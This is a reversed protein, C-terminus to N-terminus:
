EKKEAEEKPHIRVKGRNEGAGGKVEVRNQDMDFVIEEGTVTNDGESLKPEGTLVVKKDLNYFVAKQCNAVRLGQQIKVNGGAVVREIGKGNEIIVADLSDAYIVMDKQRATVNGRFLILNEKTLTEVSDSIIDIPQASDIDIKSEKGATPGEQKPKRKEAFPAFIGPLSATKREGGTKQEAKGTGPEAKPPPVSRVSEEVPMLAVRLEKSPPPPVSGIRGEEAPAPSPLPTAKEEAERVQPFPETRAVESPVATPLPEEKKPELDRETKAKGQEQVKPVPKAREEEIPTVPLTTEDKKPEPKSETKPKEEEQVKPVAKAREEEIPASVPLSEPKKMEGQQSSAPKVGERSVPAPTRKEELSVAKRGEEDYRALVLGESEPAKNKAKKAEMTKRSPKKVKLGKSLITRAERASPSGPYEKILRDLIARAKDEQELGLHCKGLYLLTRDEDVWKPFMELLGEFRSIAAQYKEQRYYFEGIFFEHEGLYRKCVGIKDKAKETFLSPPYNAVLYEFSALAKKTMTQDRDSTTMWNFYSMGIQFQVYAGEEYTPHVKKFEEYAAASEVYEKRFFHCDAVRLEAWTAYPVSDPFNSRLLEFKEIADKYKKENFLALGQKYLTEPDGQITKLGKEKKGACGLLLLLILLSVVPRKTIEMMTM